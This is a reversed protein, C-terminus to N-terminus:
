RAAQLVCPTHSRFRDTTRGIWPDSSFLGFCFLFRSSFQRCKGGFFGRGLIFSYCFGVGWGMGDGTHQLSRFSIAVLFCADGCAEGPAEPKTRRAAAAPHFIGIICSKGAIIGRHCHAAVNRAIGIFLETHIPMTHTHTYKYIFHMRTSEQRTHIPRRTYFVCCRAWAFRGGCNALSMVIHMALADESAVDDSAAGSRLM